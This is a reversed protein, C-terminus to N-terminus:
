YGSNSLIGNPKSLKYWHSSNKDFFNFTQKKLIPHFFFFKHKYVHKVNSTGLLSIESSNHSLLKQNHSFILHFRM